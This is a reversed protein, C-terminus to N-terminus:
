LEFATKYGGGIAPALRGGTLADGIVYVREFEAKIDDILETNSKVGLSLLYADFSFQKKELPNGQEDLVEFTATDGEIALLKHRTYIEPQHKGLRSMVDILNQFFLGPGINEVMEFLSVKNGEEALFEATEIGTMGTGIVGINKGNFTVERNLVQAPTFVNSQKLGPISAPL